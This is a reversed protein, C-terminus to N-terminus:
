VLYKGSIDKDEVELTLVHTGNTYNEPILIEYTNNPIGNQIFTPSCDNQDIIEIEIQLTYFLPKSVPPGRM